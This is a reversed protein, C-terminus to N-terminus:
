TLIYKKYKLLYNSSTERIDFQRLQSRDQLMYKKNRIDGSIYDDIVWSIKETLDKSDEPLILLGADLKELIEKPGYINTAIVPLGSAIGEIITLGFGEFVSPQIMISYKYLNNKVWDRDVKGLFVIRDQLKYKETLNELEKLGDGAGVFYLKINANPYKKVLFSLSRIAFDQGKWQPFLRGIQIIKIEDTDINFSYDTKVKYQDINIGNYVLISNVNGRAKLNKMVAGSISFVARFRNLFILSHTVGHVTVCTKKRWQSFFPFLKNDHCHIVDPNIKSIIKRVNFFVKPLAFKNGPNRDLLYVPINKDLTKLLEKDVNSNIIILSVSDTKSQENIIDVLMTEAGGIMFSFIAHVIKM